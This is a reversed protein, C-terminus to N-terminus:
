IRLASPPPYKGLSRFRFSNGCKSVNQNTTRSYPSPVTSKLNL